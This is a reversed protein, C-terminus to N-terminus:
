LRARYIGGIEDMGLGLYFKRSLIPNVGAAAGLWMVSAGQSRAWKRFESWLRYAVLSGRREPRVYLVLDWAGKEKSFFYEAVYGIMLGEARGHASEYILCARGKSKLCNAVFDRLKVDDIAVDVLVSEKHLAHLFAIIVPLDSEVARRAIGM